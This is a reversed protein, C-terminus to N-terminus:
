RYHGFVKEQLRLEQQRQMGQLLSDLSQSPNLSPAPGAASQGGMVPGERARQEYAQRNQNANELIWHVNALVDSGGAAYRPTQLHAIKYPEDQRVRGRKAQAREAQGRRLQAEQWAAV